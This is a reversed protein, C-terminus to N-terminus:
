DTRLADVPSIAVARRAPIYIALMASGILVSAAGALTAVDWPRIDFLLRRMLLAAGVSCLLGVITGVCVLSAAEGIV